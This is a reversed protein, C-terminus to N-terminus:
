REQRLRAKKIGFKDACVVVLPLTFAFNLGITSMSLFYNINVNDINAQKAKSEAGWQRRQRVEGKLFITIM